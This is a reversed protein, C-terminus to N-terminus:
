HWWLRRVVAKYEANRIQWYARCAVCPSIRNRSLWDLGVDRLTGIGVPVRPYDAISRATTRRLCLGLCYCTKSMDQWARDCMSVWAFLEWMRMDAFVGAHATARLHSALPFSWSAAVRLYEMVSFAQENWGWDANLDTWMM